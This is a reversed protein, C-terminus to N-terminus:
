HAHRPLHRQAASEPACHVAFYNWVVGFLRGSVYGIVATMLVLGAATWPSFPTVQYPPSIMHLRFVFDMLSQAIGGWVLLAWFAHFTGLFVAIGYGLRHPQVRTM